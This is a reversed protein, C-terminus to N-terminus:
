RRASFAALAAPGRPSPISLLPQSGARTWILGFFRCCSSRENSRRTTFCCNAPHYRTRLRLMLEDLTPMRDFIAKSFGAGLIFFTVM